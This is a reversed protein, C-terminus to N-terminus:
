RILYRAHVTVSVEKWESTTNYSGGYSYDDDAYLGTIQFVGIDIDDIGKISSFGKILKRARVKANETAEDILSLKLDGLNRLYYLPQDSEVDIGKSILSTIDRSVFQVRDLDSTQVEVVQTMRYGKFEHKMVDGESNYTNDWQENVEIAKFKYSKNDISNSALYGEVESRDQELKKFCEDKTDAMATIEADWVIWDSRMERTGSGTVSVTNSSSHRHLIAKSFMFACIVASLSIILAWMNKKELFNEMNSSIKKITSSQNDTKPQLSLSAIASPAVNIITYTHLPPM